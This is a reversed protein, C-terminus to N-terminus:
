PPLMICQGRLKMPLPELKGRTFGPTNKMPTLAHHLYPIVVTYWSRPALSRARTDLGRTAHAVTMTEVIEREFGGNEGERNRMGATFVGMDM